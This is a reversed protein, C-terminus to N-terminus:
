LNHRPHCARKCAFPLAFIEARGRHAMCIVRTRAPNSGNHRTTTEHRAADFIIDSGFGGREIILEFPM